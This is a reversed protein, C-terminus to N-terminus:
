FVLDMPLDQKYVPCPKGVGKHCHWHITLARVEVFAFINNSQHTHNHACHARSFSVYLTGEPWNRADKVSSVTAAENGWAVVQSLLFDVVPNGSPKCPRNSPNKVISKERRQQITAVEEPQPIISLLFISKEDAPMGVFRNYPAVVLPRRGDPDPTMKVNEYLRFNRFFSYVSLDLPLVWTKKKDDWTRLKSEYDPRLRMATALKHAFAKMSTHNDPFILSKTVGHCSSKKLEQAFNRSADLLLTKEWLGQTTWEQLLKVMEDFMAQLFHVIDFNPDKSDIDFYFACSRTPWIIQNFTRFSPPIHLHLHDYYFEASSLAIYGKSPSDHNPWWVDFGLLFQGGTAIARDQPREGDLKTVFPELVPIGSKPNAGSHLSKPQVVIYAESPEINFWWHLMPHQLQLM